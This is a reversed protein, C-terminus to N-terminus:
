HVLWAGLRRAEGLTRCISPAHPSTRYASFGGASTWSCGQELARGAAPGLGLGVRGFAGFGVRGVAKKPETATSAGIDYEFHGIRKFGM